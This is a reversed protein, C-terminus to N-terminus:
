DGVVDEINSKEYKADLIKTAFFDLWEKGTHKDEVKTYLSDEMEKFDIPTLGRSDRLPTQLWVM